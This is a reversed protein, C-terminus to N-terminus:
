VYKLWLNSFCLALSSVSSVQQVLASHFKLILSYVCSQNNLCFTSCRRLAPRHQSPWPGRQTKKKKRKRGAQREAAWGKQGLTIYLQESEGRRGRWVRIMNGDSVSRMICLFSKSGSGWESLFLWSQGILTVAPFAVPRLAAFLCGTDSHPDSSLQTQKLTHTHTHTRPPTPPTPPMWSQQKLLTYCCIRPTPIPPLCRPGCLLQLINRSFFIRNKKEDLNRLGSPGM